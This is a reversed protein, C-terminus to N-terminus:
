HTFRGPLGRCQSSLTRTLKCCTRRSVGTYTGAAFSATYYGLLFRVGAACM